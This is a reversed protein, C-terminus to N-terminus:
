MEAYDVKEGTREVHALAENLMMLGKETQGIEAYSKALIAIYYRLRAAGGRSLLGGIGAEMETIAGDFQGLERLAFGLVVRGFDLWWFGLGESLAIVEEAHRRVIEPERRMFSLVARLVLMLGLGPLHGSERAERLGEEGTKVSEIVNGLLHLA